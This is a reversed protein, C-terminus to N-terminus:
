SLSEIVEGINGNIVHPVMPDIFIKPIDAEESHTLYGILIRMVDPACLILVTEASPIPLIKSVFAGIIRDSIDFLSEGDPPATWFSRQWSLWNRRPFEAMTERYPLGTLSGMDRDALEDLVIPTAFPVIVSAFETMHAARPCYSRDPHIWMNFRFFEAADLRSRETLKTDATGTWLTKEDFETEPPSLLILM